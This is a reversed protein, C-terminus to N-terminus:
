KERRAEIVLRGNMGARIRREPNKITAWVRVQSTVAHLEPSVFTIEGAATLQNESSTSDGLDPIFRVPHGVLDDAYKRGDVFCEVRIPDLSIIRAIPKGAEVWEGAEVDVQAIMGSVTSAITHQDVKAQAMRVAAMKEKAKAAAVLLDYESQEIALTAQDVVMKMKEIEIKSVAGRISQNALQNQKLELKHVELTREAYRKSVNKKSELDAAEFGATAAELERMSLKSDLVVLAADEQIRDGEKVAVQKVVGAIPAAILTNQILSVRAAPVELVVETSPEIGSTEATSLAAYVLFLFTIGLLKM